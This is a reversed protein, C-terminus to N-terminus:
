GRHFEVSRVASHGDPAGDEDVMMLVLLPKRTRDQGDIRFAMWDTRKSNAFTSAFANPRCDVCDDVEVGWSALMEMGLSWVREANNGAENNCGWPTWMNVILRGSM